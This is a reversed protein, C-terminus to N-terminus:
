LARLREIIRDCASILDASYGQGLFTCEHVLLDRYKEACQLNELDDIGFVQDAHIGSKVLAVRELLEKCRKHKLVKYDSETPTSNNSHLAISRALAEVAAVRAILLNPRADPYSLRQEIISWRSSPSAKIYQRRLEAEHTECESLKM